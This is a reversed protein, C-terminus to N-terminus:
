EGRAATVPAYLVALASRMDQELTWTGKVVYAGGNQWHTHADAEVASTKTDLLSSRLMVETGGQVLTTSGSLVLVPGLEQVVLRVVKDYAPVAGTVLHLVQQDSLSSAPKGDLSRQVTVAGYCSSQRFFQAIAWEAMGERLAVEKQDARWDTHWLLLVSQTSAQPQCFVAADGDTTVRTSACATLLLGLPLLVAINRVLRMRRIVGFSFRLFASFVWDGAGQDNENDDM